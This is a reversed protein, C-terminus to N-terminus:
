KSKDVIKFIYGYKTWKKENDALSQEAQKLTEFSGWSTWNKGFWHMTADDTCKAKLKYPKKHKKGPPTRGDDFGGHRFDKREM